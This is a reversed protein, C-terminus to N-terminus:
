DRNRLRERKGKGERERWTRNDDGRGPESTLNTIDFSAICGGWHSSFCSEPPLESHPHPVFNERTMIPQVCSVGHGFVDRHVNQTLELSLLLIAQNIWWGWQTQPRSSGQKGRGSIILNADPDSICGATRDEVYISFTAKRKLATTSIILFSGKNHTVINTNIWKTKGQTALQNLYTQM